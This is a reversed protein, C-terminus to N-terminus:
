NFDNKIDLVKVITVIAALVLLLHIFLGLEYVFFGMAWLLLCLSIIIHEIRLM